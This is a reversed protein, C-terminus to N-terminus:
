LANLKGSNSSSFSEPYFSKPVVGYREVLNILMDWQGGDNVPEKLLHQVVRDNVDRDRLDIMCELFGTRLRNFSAPSRSISRSYMQSVKIEVRFVNLAAFIWCRGSSKQNTVMSEIPIKTNFVHSDEVLVSRNTILTSFDLSHAANQIMLNKPDANFEKSLQHVTEERLAAKPHHIGQPENLVPGTENTSIDLKMDSSYSPPHVASSNSSSPYSPLDTSKAKRSVSATDALHIHKSSVCGM